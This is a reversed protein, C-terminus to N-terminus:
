YKGLSTQNDNPGRDKSLYQAAEFSLARVSLRRSGFVASMIYEAYTHANLISLYRATRKRAKSSSIQKAAFKNKFQDVLLIVWGVM